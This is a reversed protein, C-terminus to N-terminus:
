SAQQRPMKSARLSEDNRAQERLSNKTEEPGSEGAGLAELAASGNEALLKVAAKWVPLHRPHLDRNPDFGDPVPMDHFLLDWVSLYPKAAGLAAELRNLRRKLSM